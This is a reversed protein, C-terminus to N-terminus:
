ILTSPSKKKWEKLVYVICLVAIIAASLLYIVPYSTKVAILGFVFSGIAIGGDFFTFFTATAYGSREHKTSQMALAQLSPVICGYGFGLFAGSILFLPASDMYSLLVYGIIFSIFGPILIYQPGKEDFIRGTFPRTLLMIAAFVLFFTSTLGLLGKEQSYISLYALVSAYSFSVVLATMSVPLAKREFLDGLVMKKVVPSAHPSMKDPITLSIGVGIAMLISIVIFLVDFSYRQILFLGILPGLVLALNTSMVFYGLGAGRRATPINDVALSGAATSVISFFIGHIFRLVLLGQFPEIFYYLGTCITYLVISIWLMKRKGFVDLVKGTFPRVIIASLLFISMLSGAEEDSRNLVDKAYLPLTSILGYFIIFISLNTFFLSIFSRTWIPEKTKLRL